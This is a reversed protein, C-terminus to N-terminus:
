DWADSDSDHKAQPITTPPPLAGAPIQPFEKQVAGMNEARENRNIMSVLASSFIASFFLFAAFTASLFQPVHQVVFEFGTQMFSLSQPLHEGAYAATHAPTSSGILSGIASHAVMSAQVGMISLGLVIPLTAAIAIWIRKKSMYKETRIEHITLAYNILIGVTNCAVSALGIPWLVPFFLSATALTAGFTFGLPAALAKFMNIFLIKKSASRRKADYGDVIMDPILQLAVLTGFAVSLCVIMGFPGLGAFTLAMCTAFVGLAVYRRTQKSLALFNFFRTEHDIKVFPKPPPPMKISQPLTSPAASPRPPPPPTTSRTETESAAHFYQLIHQFWGMKKPPSAAEGDKGRPSSPPSSKGSGSIPSSM